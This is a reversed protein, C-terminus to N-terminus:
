SADETRTVTVDIGEERMRRITDALPDGVGFDFDLTGDGTREARVRAMIETVTEIDEADSLPEIFLVGATPTIEGDAHGYDITKRVTDIVMIVVHRREPHGVLQHHIRDMGNADYDKPLSASLKVTM